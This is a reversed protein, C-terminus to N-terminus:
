SPNGTGSGAAQDLCMQNCSEPYNHPEAEKKIGPVDVCDIVPTGPPM